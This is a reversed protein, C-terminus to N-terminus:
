RPIVPADVIARQVADAVDRRLPIHRQNDRTPNVRNALLIVFLEKEPDIWMSTGTFGTHGYSAASFYSGASTTGAPTEWGLARTSAETQRRTFLDITAPDVYRRGEFFGRNLMLQAFIALDRASSFLGAHGAVGGIAFANEDHVEGRLHRRRFASDVETPAIRNVIQEVASEDHAGDHDIVMRAGYPWQLPNFGTDRLGLPRFLRDRLFGDMTQGSVQEIILGLLIIGFDSYLTRSGPEYELTMGTIRRRYQARGQLERWLPGYAALGSNHMLLHRITVSEKAPTGRWEPLHRRVPDDLAILGEDYLMMLATTTAVAKTISALDYITSDTVAPYGRRRDLMGYGRLRVLRGYRGIALAAGPAAGALLHAHIISDVRELLGSDMGVEEPAAHRLGYEAAVRDVGRQGIDRPLEVTLRGPIPLQGAIARAAARSAAEGSAQWALLYTSAGPLVASGFPDGFSVVALRRSEKELRAALERASAPVGLHGRGETTTLFTALLTADSRRALRVISDLVALSTHDDIRFFAVGRGYIRELEDAFHAGAHVDDRSTVAVAVLSRTRRPDLPLLMASDRVLTLSRSAIHAAVIGHEPAGVIRAVSDLPQTRRHHLGLRAKARLVRVVSSDVRSYHLRGSRVAAVLSRHALEPDPPALVVDAGAQVARVVLDSPSYGAISRVAGMTMADTVVIGTFGLKQRLLDTALQPSVSAPSTFGGTLAPVAIHGLMISSVGAAIAARFPLLERGDLGAADVNLVPLGVNSDVRSDGHGPFHKATTLVGAAEAGRIFASAFTTVTAPDSGYSRVNITPNDWATNIDVVPAFVWHIGAARAEIATIRGALEALSPDGSAALGMNYPFVTGGGAQLRDPLWTASTLRAGAGWELEAAVLLPLGSRHQLENLKLAVDLPSGAGVLFSGAHTVDLLREVERMEAGRLNEFGGPLQLMLLQGVRQELSMSALTRQVWIEDDLPLAGSAGAAARGSPLTCGALWACALVAGAPRLASGLWAVPGAAAASTRRARSGGMRLTSGKV